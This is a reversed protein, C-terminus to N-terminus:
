SIHATGDDDCMMNQEMNPQFRTKSLMKLGVTGAEREFHQISRHQARSLKEQLMLKMAVFSLLNTEYVMTADYGGQQDRVATESTGMAGGPCNGRASAM